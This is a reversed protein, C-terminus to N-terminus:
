EAFSPPLPPIGLLLRKLSIKGSGPPGHLVILSVKMNGSGESIAKTVAENLASDDDESEADEDSDVFLDIYQDFDESVTTQLGAMSQLLELVKSYGCQMAVSLATRDQKDVIEYNAGNDLLLKVISDHGGESATILATTGDNRLMTLM